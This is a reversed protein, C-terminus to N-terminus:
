RARGESAAEAEEPEDPEHDDIDFLARFVWDIGFVVPTAATALPTLLVTRFNSDHDFEWLVQVTDRWADDFQTAPHVLVADAVGAVFGVPLAVPAVVWRMTVDSPAAHEDLYNLIHRRDANGIACSALLSSAVVAVCCRNM